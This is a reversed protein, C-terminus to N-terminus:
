LSLIEEPRRSTVAEEYGSALESLFTNLNGGHSDSAMRRVEEALRRGDILVIPYQDDMMEEQANRSYDSITVYAGIWGRRLRAVVRALEEASVSKDLRCKAQGLVVLSTIADESGVDLRGVFDVGRDGSGRTLWGEHYVAGQGRFVRAAVRAALLEFRHQRGQYFEYIRRLIQAEVSGAEPRQDSKSRVRSTAVRRRLRPLIPDGHEVWRRWSRPAHRHTEQLSLGPDRRDDIWRWDIAEAEEALSLVTLDFAYNAFSQGTSPDRQVVHELRDLVAVGCFEIYGKLARGVSVSRFLLLPPAAARTEPTSGRHQPWAELLAKNGTTSGLPGDTSVKHDGFYRVHGHDLDFVDHWPTDEGGAKWPSSRLAIVPRRQRGQAGISRVPNIGSELLVRTGIPGTSLYHLNPYGDAIPLDIAVRGYRLVANMRM